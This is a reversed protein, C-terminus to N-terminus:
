VEPPKPDSPGILDVNMRLMADHLSDVYSGAVMVQHIGSIKQIFHDTDKIKVEARNSCYRRMKSSAMNPFSPRAKDNVGAKIMGPWWVFSRLDKSFGGMTVEVGAPYEIEPTVGRGMGHYDRLVYPLPPVDSGLLKLPAVCHRLVISSNKADVSSVNHFYSPKRSIEQLLMSTLLGCVDAECPAAIGEDRLRTFSLCPYPLTPKADFSFSLCDISIASLGEKDVISRLLVYLRSADMIAQDSAEVINSAERKWREMEKRASAEDVTQLLPALEEIPRYKIRVGTHRYVYDENLNLAPVSSSDFPRGFIVARKGELIRPTAAIKLLEMAHTDSNALMAPTGRMRFAAVLDAEVMILDLDQPFLIVPIDLDGIAAAISGSSIGTRPMSCMFLIDADRAQISHITEQPNKSNVQIPSVAFEFEKLSKISEILREHEPRPNGVFLVNRKKGAPQPKPFGAADRGLLGTGPITAAMSAMTTTKIFDRRGVHAKKQNGNIM